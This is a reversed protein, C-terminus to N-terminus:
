QARRLEEGLEHLYKWTYIGTKHGDSFSFVVAYNGVLQWGLIEIGPFSKPGDGGYQQGFIDREGINEASPSRQRLFEVPFFDEGGGPWRVALDRGILQIDLPPPTM